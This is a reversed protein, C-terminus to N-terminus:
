YKTACCFLISYYFCLTLLINIKNGRIFLETIRPNLKKNSLMDVIVDDFCGINQTEEISQM